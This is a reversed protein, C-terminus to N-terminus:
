RSLIKNALLNAGSTLVGFILFLIYASSLPKGWDIASSYRALVILELICFAFLSSVTGAGHKIDNEFTLAACAMGFATLWSSIARGALPTVEWPWIASMATPAIFLGLGCLLAFAALIAFGGRMWARLPHRGKINAGPLRAQIIWAAFLIFPVTVYVIIWVWTVFRTILLPSDFHFKDLHLFTSVTLLSTATLAAPLSTRVTAWSSARAGSYAHLMAAWYGAGMFAASIPSAFTWAFYTETQEALVFLQVGAIFLLPLVLGYLVFRSYSTLGPPDTRTNTMRM